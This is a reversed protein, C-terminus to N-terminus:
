IEDKVQVRTDSESPEWGELAVPVGLRHLINAVTALSVKHPVGLVFADDATTILMAAVSKNWDEPRMLRVNRIDKLAFCGTWMTGVASNYLIGDEKITVGRQINGVDMLAVLILGAALSVAIAKGTELPPNRAFTAVAFMLGSVILALLGRRVWGWPERLRVVFFYPEHWSMQTSSFLKM